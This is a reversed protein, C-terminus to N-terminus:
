LNKRKSKLKYAKSSFYVKDSATMPIIELGIFNTSAPLFMRKVRDEYTAFLIVRIRVKGQLGSGHLGGEGATCYYYWLM